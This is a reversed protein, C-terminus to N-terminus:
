RVKDTVPFLAEHMPVYYIADFMRREAQCWLCRVRLVM